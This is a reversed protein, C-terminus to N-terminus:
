LSRRRCVDRGRCSIERGRWVSTARTRPYLGWLHGITTGAGVEHKLTVSAKHGGLVDIGYTARVTGCRRLVEYFIENERAAAGFGFIVNGSDPLSRGIESRPRDILYPHLSRVATRHSRGFSLPDPGRSWTRRWRWCRRRWGNWSAMM